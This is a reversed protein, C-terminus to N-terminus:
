SSAVDNPTRRVTALRLHLNEWGCRGRRGDPELDIVTGEPRPM